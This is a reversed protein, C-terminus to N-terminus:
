LQSEWITTTLSDLYREHKNKSTWKLGDINFRPNIYCNKQKFPNIRKKNTLFPGHLQM